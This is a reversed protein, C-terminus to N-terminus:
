REPRSAGDVPSAGPTAEEPDREFCAAARRAGAIVAGRHVPPSATASGESTISSGSPAPAGAAVLTPAAPVFGQLHAEVAAATTRTAGPGLVSGAVLAPGTVGSLFRYILRGDTLAAFQGDGDADLMVPTLARSADLYARIAAAATRTAGAGPPIGSLLQRDPVGALYRLIIRADTVDATGNGDADLTAGPLVTLTGVGPAETPTRRCNDERGCRTVGLTGAAPLPARLTMRRCRSVNGPQILVCSSPVTDATYCMGPGNNSSLMIEEFVELAPDFRDCFPSPQAPDAPAPTPMFIPAEASIWLRAPAGSSAASTPCPGDGPDADGACVRLVHLAGNFLPSIRFNPYEGQLVYVTRTRPGSEVAAMQIRAEIESGSDTLMTLQDAEVGNIQIVAANWDEASGFAQLLFTGAAANAFSTSVGGPRINSDRRTFFAVVSQHADMPVACSGLGICEAGSWGTFASDPDAPVPTLVAQTSVPFHVDCSDSCVIDGPTILVTGGAGEDARVTVHLRALGGGTV